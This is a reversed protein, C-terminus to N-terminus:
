SLRLLTGFIYFSLVTHMIRIYEKYIYYAATLLAILIYAWFQCHAQLRDRGHALHHESMSVDSSLQFYRLAQSSKYRSQLKCYHAWKNKHINIYHSFTHGNNLPLWM